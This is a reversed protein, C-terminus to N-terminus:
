EGKSRRTPKEIPLSDVEELWQDVYEKFHNGGLNGYNRYLEHWNAKDSASAWGREVFLDKHQKMQDRLLTVTGSTNTDIKNEINDIRSNLQMALPTIVSNFDELRERRLEANYARELEAKRAATEEEQRRREEDHRNLARKVLFVCIPGIIATVGVCVLSIISATDM